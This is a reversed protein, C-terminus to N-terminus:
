SRRLGGSFVDKSASLGLIRFILFLAPIFVFDLKLQIKELGFSIEFFTSLHNCSIYINSETLLIQSTAIPFSSALLIPIM